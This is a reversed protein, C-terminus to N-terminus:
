FGYAPEKVKQYKGGLFAAKKANRCLKDAKQESEPMNKCEELKVELAVKNSPDRFWDISGPEDAAFAMGSFFLCLLVGILVRYGKM